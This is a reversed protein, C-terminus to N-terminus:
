NEQDREIRCQALLARVLAVNARHGPRLAEVRLELRADALALDGILDLLKHACWENAVRLPASFGDPPTIILANDLSGGRALGAKLLMEVEAQFAFTRAPAIAARYVETTAGSLTMEAEAAGEPWNDFETRVQLHLAAAPTATLRVGGQEVTVPASLRLTRAPKGQGRVGVAHIAEAFPAASGDLIPIEPGEVLIVANDVGWAHLASLLHEVTSVTAGDRGLRTSRSTDTVFEARAPILVDGVQFVRGTDVAAPLLTVRGHAGTHIGVGELNFSGAVTQQEM